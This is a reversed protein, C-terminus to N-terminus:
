RPLNPKTLWTQRGNPAIKRIEGSLTVAVGIVVRFVVYEALWPRDDVM